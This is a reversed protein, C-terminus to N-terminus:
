SKFLTLIEEQCDPHISPDFRTEITYLQCKECNLWDIGNYIHCSPCPKGGCYHDCNTCPKWKEPICVELESINEPTDKHVVECNKIDNQCDSHMSLKIKTEETYKQCKECINWKIELYVDHCDACPDGEYYSICNTCPKWKDTRTFGPYYFIVNDLNEEEKRRPFQELSPHSKSVTDEVEIPIQELPPPSESDSDNNLHPM